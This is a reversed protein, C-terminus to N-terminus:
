IDPRSGTVFKYEMTKKKNKRSILCSAILVKFLYFLEESLFSTGLIYEMTM